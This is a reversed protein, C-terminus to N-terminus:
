FEADRIRFYPNQSSRVGSIALLVTSILESNKQGEFDKSFTLM